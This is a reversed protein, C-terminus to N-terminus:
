LLSTKHFAQGVPAYFKPPPKNYHNELGESLSTWHIGDSGAVFGFGQKVFFELGKEGVEVGGSSVGLATVDEVIHVIVQEQVSPFEQGFDELAFDLVADVGGFLGGRCFLTRM